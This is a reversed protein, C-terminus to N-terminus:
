TNIICCIQVEKKETTGMGKYRLKIWQLMHIVLEEVRYNPIDKLLSIKCVLPRYSVM